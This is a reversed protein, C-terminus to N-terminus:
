SGGLVKRVARTYFPVSARPIVDAQAGLLLRQRGGSEAPAEDVSARNRFLDTVGDEDFDTVEVDFGNGVATAPLITGPSPASFRGSGDNLLVLYDGITDMTFSSPAIVDVDGDRDLDAFQIIQRRNGGTAADPAESALDGLDISSAAFDPKGDGDGDVGELVKTRSDRDGAPAVLRGGDNVFTRSRDGDILVADLDGDGDADEVDIGSARSLSTGGSADNVVM